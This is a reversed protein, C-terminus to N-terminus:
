SIEKLKSLLENINRVVIPDEEVGRIELLLKKSNQGFLSYFFEIARLRLKRDGIEKLTNMIAVIAKTKGTLGIGRILLDRIELVNENRLHLLLPNIMDKDQIDALLRIAAGRRDAEDLYILKLIPQIDIGKGDRKAKEFFYQCDKSQLILSGMIWGMEEKSFVMHQGWKEVMALAEGDLFMENIVANRLMNRIRKKEEFEDLKLIRYLPEKLHRSSLSYYTLNLLDTEKVVDKEKLLALYGLITERPISTEFMFDEVTYRRLYPETRDTIIFAVLERLAPDYKLVELLDELVRETNLNTQLLGFEGPKYSEAVDRFIRDEGHPTVGKTGDMLKLEYVASLNMRAFPTFWEFFTEKDGSIIVYINEQDLCFDIFREFKEREEASISMLRECEDVVFFCPGEDLLGRCISVIDLDSYSFAEHKKCVVDRIECVPSQWLECYFVNPAIALIQPIIFSKLVTTKGTTAEGVALVYGFNFLKDLILSAEERRNLPPNQFENYPSFRPVQFIDQDDNFDRTIDWIIERYQFGLRGNVVDKFVSFVDELYHRAKELVHLEYPTKADYRIRIIGERSDVDVHADNPRLVLKPTQFRRLRVYRLDSYFIDHLLHAFNFLHGIIKTNRIIARKSDETIEWEVPIKKVINSFTLYNIIEIAMEPIDLRKALGYNLLLKKHPLELSNLIEGNVNWRYNRALGIDHLYITGLLAFIEGSFMEQTRDRPEPIIKELLSKLVETHEKVPLDVLPFVNEECFTKLDIFRQYLKLEREKERLVDELKSQM